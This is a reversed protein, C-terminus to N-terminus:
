HPLPDPSGPPPQHEQLLILPPYPLPPGRPIRKPLNMPPAPAALTNKEPPNSAPHPTQHDRMWSGRALSCLCKQEPVQDNQHLQFGERCPWQAWRELRRSWMPQAIWSFLASNPCAAGAQQGERNKTKNQKKTKKPSCERCISTGLSPTWNSRCSGASAVALAALSLLRM